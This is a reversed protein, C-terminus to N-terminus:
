SSSANLYIIIKEFVSVNEQLLGIAQNCKQCLMGRVKGTKHCHDIALRKINGKSDKSIEPEGCIDCVTRKALERYTEISIGYKKSAWLERHREETRHYHAKDRERIKKANRKYWERRKQQNIPDAWYKRLYEKRSESHNKIYIRHSAYIREKNKLYYKRREEKTTTM